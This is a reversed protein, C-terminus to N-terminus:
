QDLFANPSSISQQLSAPWIAIETGHADPVEFSMLVEEEVVRKSPDKPCGDSGPM